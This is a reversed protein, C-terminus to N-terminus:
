MRVIVNGTKNGSDVHKHADVIESFPYIKDIVAELQGKELLSLLFKIDEKKETATGTIVQKKSGSALIQGFSAVMLVLRGNQKLLKLGSKISINGVADLVVDFTNTSRLVSEKTYDIVNQAGLSTVLQINQTSTVATVEAGLFKAIQVANTGVAGSAGNILVTEGKTVKAKNRLFFLASTGGFLMGATDEHSVSKPKKAISGTNKVVVYEAHTGMRIGTMGCIEDGAKFNAVEPGVSEVVGSFCIGLVKKRPGFVGLALRALVSFGKPFRAGRIRTDGVTIPASVVKVLIEDKKPTPKPADKIIVVNPPGYKEYYATKM